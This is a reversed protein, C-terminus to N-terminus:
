NVHSLDKYTLTSIYEKLLANNKEWKWSQYVEVFYFTIHLLL